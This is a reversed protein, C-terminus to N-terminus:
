LSAVRCKFLHICQRLDHVACIARKQKPVPHTRISSRRQDTFAGMLHVKAEGTREADTLSPHCLLELVAGHAVVVM